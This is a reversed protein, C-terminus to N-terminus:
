WRAPEHAHEARFESFATDFKCVREFLENLIM